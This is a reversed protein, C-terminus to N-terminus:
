LCQATECRALALARISIPIPTQSPCNPNNPNSVNGPPGQRLLDMITPETTGPCNPNNPNNANGTLGALDRLLSWGLSAGIRVLVLNGTTNTVAANPSSPLEGPAVGRDVTLTWQANCDFGPALHLEARIAACADANPDLAVAHAAARAARTLKDVTLIDIVIQILVAFSLVLIGIALATPIATAACTGCWFGADDRRFVTDDCPFKM